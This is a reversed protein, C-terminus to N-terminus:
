QRTRMVAVFNVKHASSSHQCSVDLCRAFGLEDALSAPSAILRTYVRRIRGLRDEFSVASASNLFGVVTSEPGARALALNRSRRWHRRHM